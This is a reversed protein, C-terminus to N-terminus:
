HRALWFGLCGLCSLVNPCLTPAWSSLIQPVRGFHTPSLAESERGGDIGGKLVQQNHQKRILRGGLGSLRSSYLVELVIEGGGEALAAVVLEEAPVAVQVVETVWVGVVVVAQQVAWSVVTKSVMSPSSSSGQSPRM